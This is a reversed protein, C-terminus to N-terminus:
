EGNLNARWLLNGDGYSLFRFDNELAYNYIKRWGPGAFAAVLLLLTSSPQHFNTVLADAIKFPYGPAIMIQTKALLSGKGTREVYALLAELADKPPYAHAQLEYAEWQSLFLPEKDFVLADQLLKCGLWYLSEVTRLSTTGVVIVKEDINAILNKIFAREVEIFESHMQHHQMTAAKVPKFTGAGVHLTVFGTEVHRAKLDNLIRETFHLGATPAAVSGDFSAYVTQYREADAQEVDRKIYPPLPVKGAHHLIEAFSIKDDDWQLQIVFSDTRKEIYHASLTVVNGKVQMTKQLVLGRKWKSAGGVLCLWLVKGTQAMATTIDVYQEHPELCFIEIVGGSDKQFLLRAEVVRTNNFVIFSKPPIFRSINSYVTESIQRHRYVLLRSSDREPLPHAAIKDEPLHYTYDAISINKPHM